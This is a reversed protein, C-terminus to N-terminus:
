FSELKFLSQRFLYFAFPRNGRHDPRYKILHRDSHREDGGTFHSKFHDKHYPVGLALAAEKLHYPILKLTEETSKIIVPIMMMSLAIGGSFM